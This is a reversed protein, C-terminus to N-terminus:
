RRTVVRDCVRFVPYDAAIREFAALDDDPAAPFHPRAGPALKLYRRLIPARRDVEVEQLRIPERRGHILVAEGGAARVNKAWESVEGLMAVLYREGKLDAVVVPFSVTRGSKRGRVELASLRAPAIGAVALRGWIGNLTRALHNPHGGEYM